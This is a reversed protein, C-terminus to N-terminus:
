VALDANVWIQFDAYGRKRSSNKFHYAGILARIGTWEPTKMSMIYRRKESSEMYQSSIEGGINCQFAQGPDQRRWEAAVAAVFPKV